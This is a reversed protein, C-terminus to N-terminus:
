RVSRLVEAQREAEGASHTQFRVRGGADLVVYTPFAWVQLAREVQRDADVRVPFAAGSARVAAALQPSRAEPTVAVVRVGHASLRRAAQVLAPFDAQSLPCWRLWVAVVTVGGSRPDFAAARGDLTQVRPMGRVPRSTVGEMVRRRMEGRAVALARTWGTASWTRGVHMQVSDAFGASTTPDVAVRASAALAAATDGAQLRASALDRFVAPSWALGAARDLAALGEARRGAQLMAKGAGALLDASERRYRARQEDVTEGVLRRGAAPSERWGVERLALAIGQGRTDERQMLAGAVSAGALPEGAVARDAWRLVDAGPANQELLNIFVSFALMARHGAAVSPDAGEATWAEEAGRLYAAPGRGGAEALRMGRSWAGGPHERRVRERWGRAGATDGLAGAFAGMMWAQRETVAFGTLRAQLADFRARYERRVSDARATGAEPPAEFALAQGQFEPENPYLVAGERLTRLALSLDRERADDFRQRLAARTPRGAQDHAMLEWAQGHDDVTRGDPSEVGFVAYAVTAPLRVRGRYVGGAARRLVAVTRVPVALSERFTATDRIRARLRLSPRGALATSPRYEVSVTEGAVPRAPGFTLESSGAEVQGRPLLLAAAVALVVAAAAVMWRGPPHRRVFEAPTGDVPLLVREGRARRGLVRDLADAAPPPLVAERAHVSLARLDTVITRCRPCRALHAAVARPRPHEGAAYRALPRFGPHTIM